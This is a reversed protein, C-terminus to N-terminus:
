SIKMFHSIKLFLLFTLAQYQIREMQIFFVAYSSPNTPYLSGGLLFYAIITGHLKIQSTDAALSGFPSVYIGAVLSFYFLLGGNLHKLM